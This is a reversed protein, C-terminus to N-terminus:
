FGVHGDNSDKATANFNLVQTNTSMLCGFVLTGMQNLKVM